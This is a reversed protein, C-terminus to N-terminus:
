AEGREKTMDLFHTALWSRQGGVEVFRTESLAAIEKM